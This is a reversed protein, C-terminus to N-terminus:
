KKAREIAKIESLRRIDRTAHRFATGRWAQVIKWAAGSTLRDAGLALMNVNDDRRARKVTWVSEALVCRIGRVKNAAISAGAGSRCMVIGQNGKKRRVALAVKRAYVPYDDNPDLRVAGLDRFPIRARTLRRALARKMSFGGHDAGLYLM